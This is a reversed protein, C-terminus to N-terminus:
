KAGVVVVLDYTGAISNSEELEVTRDALTKKIDKAFDSKGTKYYVMTTAYTFVRANATNSITYGATELTGKVAVASGKVGNGNLVSVKASVKDLTPTVATTTSPQTATDAPTTTAAAPTSTASSNSKTYDTDLNEYPNSTTENSDTTGVLEDIGIYKYITKLNQKILIAILLLTLIIIIIKLSKGSPKARKPIQPHAPEEEQHGTAFFDDIEEEVEAPADFRNYAPVDQHRVLVEEEGAELKPAEVEPEPIPESIIKRKIKPRIDNSIGM